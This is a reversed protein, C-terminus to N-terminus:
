IPPMFPKCFMSLCSWDPAAPLMPPKPLRMFLKPPFYYRDFTQLLNFVTTCKQSTKWDSRYQKANINKKLNVQVNNNHM